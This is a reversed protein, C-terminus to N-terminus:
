SLRRFQSHHCDHCIRLHTLIQIPICSSKLLDKQDSLLYSLYHRAPPHSTPHLHLSVVLQGPHSKSKRWLNEISRVSMLTTRNNNKLAHEAGTLSDASFRSTTGSRPRTEVVEQPEPGREVSV